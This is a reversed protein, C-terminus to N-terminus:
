AVTLRRSAPADPSDQAATWAEALRAVGDALEDAPRTWPIRVFRGLGGDVSFVPGPAVAVGRREAELVVTSALPAPLECWLALGGGPLRFRWEPLLERMATVLRDRQERLRARQAALIAERERLLHVLVLQELVPAGLDLTVRGSLLSEVRARPARIWGIRLGGWFAKSASGLSITDPAYAAFPRPMPQGELALMQHAEDVVALTHSATLVAAYQERQADTMLHGTPNQFDAVLYALRPAAQRVTAAVAALDWGEPDVPVGVLRAGQRGLAATANPYVPNEVVIRDGPRTQSQAVIAAASLSGATVMIQDPDTALGREDYTTAIAQQLVPLGAPYYGHDTLYRPLEALAADYAAALGPPAIPAACSLNIVDEGTHPNLARDAIAGRGGPVRTFTGSGRRAEAYGREQLEAYARTATTRSVELAVALERESPLRSGTTIRGDRVLLRLADALGLYSPSRDFDGVLTAVRSASLVESM